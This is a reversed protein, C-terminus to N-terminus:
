STRRSASSSRSACRWARSVAFSAAVYFFALLPIALGASRLLTEAILLVMSWLTFYLFAFM